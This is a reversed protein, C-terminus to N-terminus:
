AILEFAKRFIEPKSPKRSNERSEALAGQRTKLFLCNVEKALYKGEGEWNM